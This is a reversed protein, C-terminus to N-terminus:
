YVVLSKTLIDDFVMFYYGSKLGTIQGNVETFPVSKGSIDYIEIKKYDGEINVSGSCPNPYIKIKSDAKEAVYLQKIFTKKGDYDTQYLKIYHAESDIFHGYYQPINSNGAGTIRYDKIFNMDKDFLAISFYDNNTETATSWNLTRSNSDFFVDLMSVPLTSTPDTNFGSVYYVVDSYDKDGLDLDEFGLIWKDAITDKFLVTHAHNSGNYNPDSYWTRSWSPLRDVFTTSDSTWSNDFLVWGITVGAEFYGLNIKNGPSLDSSNNNSSNPFILFVTDIESASTPVDDNSYTYYGLSNLHGASETVFTIYISDAANVQIDTQQIYEPHSATVDQGAPIYGSSGNIRSVDASTVTDDVPELYYPKGNSDWDGLTKLVWQSNAFYSLFLFTITFLTKM